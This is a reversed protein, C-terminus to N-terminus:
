LVSRWGNSAQLLQGVVKKCRRFELKLSKHKFLCGGCFNPKCSLWVVFLCTNKELFFPNLWENKQSGFGKEKSNPPSKSWPSMSGHTVSGNFGAFRSHFGLVASTSSAILLEPGWLTPVSWPLFFLWFFSPQHTQLYRSVVNTLVSYIYIYLRAIVHKQSTLSMSVSPTTNLSNIFRHKELDSTKKRSTQFSRVRM